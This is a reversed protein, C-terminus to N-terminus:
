EKPSVFYFINVHFIEFFVNILHICLIITAFFIVNSRDDYFLNMFALIFIVLQSIQVIIFDRHKMEEIETITNKQKEDIKIIYEDTKWAIGNEKNKKVHSEKSEKDMAKSLDKKEFFYAKRYKYYKSKLYFRYMAYIVLLIITLAKVYLM